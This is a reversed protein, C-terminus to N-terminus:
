PTARAGDDGSIRGPGGLRARKLSDDLKVRSHLWLSGDALRVVTMRTGM